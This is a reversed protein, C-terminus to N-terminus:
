GEQLVQLFAEGFRDIKAAGLGSVQALESLSSPRAEAIRRLEATSCSLPKGTGDEGRMLAVQAEALRDFLPGAARGALRMRQPHLPPPAAGTIM